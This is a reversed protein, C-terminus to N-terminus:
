RYYKYSYVVKIPKMNEKFNRYEISKEKILEGKNNYKKRIEHMIYGNSKEIERSPNLRKGKYEFVFLTSDNSAYTVKKKVMRGIEDYFYEILHQFGFTSVCSDKKLKGQNWFYFEHQESVLVSDQYFRLTKKRLVRMTDYEYDKEWSIYRPGFRIEKVLLDNEYIDLEKGQYKGNAYYKTRILRKQDDYLYYMSAIEKGDEFIKTSELVGDSNYVNKTHLIRYISPYILREMKEVLRGQNDFFTKEILTDNRYKEMCTYQAVLPFYVLLFLVLKKKM